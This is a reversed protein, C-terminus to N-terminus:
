GGSDQIAKEQAKKQEDVTKQVDKAKQLAKVDTSFVNSDPLPQAPQAAAQKPPPPADAGCASLGVCAITLVIPLIKM